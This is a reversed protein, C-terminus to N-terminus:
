LAINSMITQCISAVRDPQTRKSEKHRVAGFVHPAIHVSYVADGCGAQIVEVVNSADIGGSPEVALIEEEAALRVVEQFEDLAGLGHMPYYKVSDVGADKFLQLAARSPVVAKEGAASFPGTSISVYGRGAPQILANVVTEKLGRARLAGAAHGATPYLQNIHDPSTELAVSLVRSWQQPDGDGLALSVFLGDLDLMERTQEVVWETEPHDKLIISAVVPVSLAQALESANASDVVPVHLIWKTQSIYSRLTM